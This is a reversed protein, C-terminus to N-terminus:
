SPEGQAPRKRLLSEQTPLHCGRCIDLGDRQEIGFQTRQVLGHICVDGAAPLREKLAQRVGSLAAWRVIVFIIFLNLAWLLIATGTDVCGDQCLHLLGQVKRKM